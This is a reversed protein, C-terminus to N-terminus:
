VAIVAQPSPAYGQEAFTLPWDEDAWSSEHIVKRLETLTYTLCSVKKQSEIYGHSIAEAQERNAAEVRFYANHSGEGACTHGECPHQLEKFHAIFM